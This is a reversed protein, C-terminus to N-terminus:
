YNVNLNNYISRYINISQHSNSATVPVLINFIIKFLDFKRKNGYVQRGFNFMLLSSVFIMINSIILLNLILTSILPMICVSVINNGYNKYISAVLYILSIWIFVLVTFVIITKLIIRRKNIEINVKLNTKLCSYYACTIKYDSNRNCTNPVILHNFNFNRSGSSNIFYLSDFNVSTKENQKVFNLQSQTQIKIENMDLNYNVSNLDMDYRYEINKITSKTKDKREYLLSNSYNLLYLDSTCSKKHTGLEFSDNSKSVISDNSISNEPKNNSKNKNIVKRHLKYFELASLLKAKFTKIKTQYSHIGQKVFILELKDM